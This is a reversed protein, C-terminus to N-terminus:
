NSLTIKGHFDQFNSMNWSLNFNGLCELEETSESYVVMGQEAQEFFVIVLKDSNLKMPKPFSKKDLLEMESKM